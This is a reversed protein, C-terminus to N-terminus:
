GFLREEQWEVTLADAALRRTCLRDSGKRWRSHHDHASGGLTPNDSTVVTLDSLRAAIAGMVPRKTQDRDGGCGFVTILRGKTLARLATIANELAGPKHSYDVFVFREGGEV